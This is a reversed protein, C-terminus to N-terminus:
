RKFGRSVPRWEFTCLAWTHREPFSPVPNERQFYRYLGVLTLTESVRWRFETGVLFGRYREVGAVVDAGRVYGAAAEVSTTRSTDQKLRASFNDAWKSQSLYPVILDREARLQATTRSLLQQQLYGAFAASIRGSRGGASIEPGGEVGFTTKEGLTSKYGVGLGFLVHDPQNVYTHIQAYSIWLSNRGVSNTIQARTWATDSHGGHTVSSFSDAFTFSWEQRPTRSWSLVTSGIAITATDNPLAYTLGNIAGNGNDIAVSAIERISEPGYMGVASFKWKWRESMMHYGDFSAHQFASGDFHKGDYLDITPAYQFLTKTRRGGQFLGIYPQLVSIAGNSDPPTKRRVWGYGQSENLGILLGDGALEDLAVVGRAGLTVVDTGNSDTRTSNSNTPAPGPPPEVPKAGSQIDARQSEPGPANDTQAALRPVLIGGALLCPLFVQRLFNM